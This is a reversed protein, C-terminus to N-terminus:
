EDSDGKLAVGFHRALRQIDTQQFVRKNAIRLKPEPILGVSIAYSVQYPKRGLLRAVDNLLLNTKM